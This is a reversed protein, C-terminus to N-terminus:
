LSSLVSPFYDPAKELYVGHLEHQKSQQGPEDVDM